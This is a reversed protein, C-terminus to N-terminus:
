DVISDFTACLADYPNGENDFKSYMGVKTCTYARPLIDDITSITDLAISRTNFWVTYQETSEEFTVLDIIDMSIIDNLLTSLKVYVKSEKIIADTTRSLLAVNEHTIIAYAENTPNETVNIAIDTTHSQFM